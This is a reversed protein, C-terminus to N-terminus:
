PKARLNEAVKSIQQEITMPILHIKGVSDLWTLGDSFYLDDPSELEMTRSVSSKMGLKAFIMETLQGIEILDGGSDIIRSPGPSSLCVVKVFDELDVYRRWVHHKANIEVHGTLAQQILNSFAFLSPKTVLNGSVSWIRAITTKTALEPNEILRREYAAKLAGYPDMAPDLRDVDLHPVAAGSSIGIFKEVSPLKQIQLAQEILAYNSSTYDELSIELSKERTIFAADIVMTPRFARIKEPDFLDFQFKKGGIQEVRCSSAVLHLQTGIQSLWNSATRGVWGSAGLIAVRELSAMSNLGM